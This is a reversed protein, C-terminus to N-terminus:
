SWERNCTILVDKTVDQSEVAGPTVCDNVSNQIRENQPKKVDVNVCRQSNDKRFCANMSYKRCYYTFIILIFVVLLTIM